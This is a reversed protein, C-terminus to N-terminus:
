KIERRGKPDDLLSCTPMGGSTCSTKYLERLISNKKYRSVFSYAIM